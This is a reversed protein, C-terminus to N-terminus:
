FKILFEIIGNNVLYEFEVFKKAVYLATRFHSTLNDMLIKGGRLSLWLVLNDSLHYDVSLHHSINLFELVAKEGIEEAPIGKKCLIDHGILTNGEFEGWITFSCGPSLSPQYIYKLDFDNFGKELLKKEASEKIRECVRRKKLIESSSIIGKIRLLRSVEFNLNLKNKLINRLSLINKVGRLEKVGKLLIKVEGGGQPYYGRKLIEIEIKEILPLLPKLIVNQFYDITPGGPVDTGGIIHMSVPSEAFISVPFLTQLFLPISGATKFDLFISGGKIRGPKFEIELSGKEDGKIQSDTIIKLAKLINLHQPKLGPNPRGKRINYIRFSKGTILSYVLAYRLIQGGGEGFSGDIEIM